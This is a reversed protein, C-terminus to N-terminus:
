GYFVLHLRAPKLEAVGEGVKPVRFRAGTIPTAFGRSNFGLELFQETGLTDDFVHQDGETVQCIVPGYPFTKTVPDEALVQVSLKYAYSDPDLLFPELTYGSNTVEVNNRAYIM